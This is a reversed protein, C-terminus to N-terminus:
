SEELRKLADQYEEDISALATSLSMVGSGVYQEGDRWWAFRHIAEKAGERFSELKLVELSSGEGGLAKSARIGCEEAYYYADGEGKPDHQIMWRFVSMANELRFQLDDNVKGLRIVENRNGEDQLRLSELAKSQMTNLESLMEAWDLVIDSYKEGLKGLEHRNCFDMFKIVVEGFGAKEARLSALEAEAEVKGCSCEAGVSRRSLCNLKHSQIFKELVSTM